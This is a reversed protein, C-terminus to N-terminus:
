KMQIPRPTDWSVEGLCPLDPSPETKGVVVRDDIKTMAESLVEVDHRLRDAKRVEGERDLHTNQVKIKEFSKPEPSEDVNKWEYYVNDTKYYGVPEWMNGFVPFKNPQSGLMLMISNDSGALDLAYNTSTAAASLNNLTTEKDTADLYVFDGKVEFKQGRATLVNTAIEGLGGRILLSNSRDLTQNAQWFWLGAVGLLLWLKWNRYTKMDRGYASAGWLDTAFSGFQIHCEKRPWWFRRTRM